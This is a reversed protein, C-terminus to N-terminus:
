NIFKAYIDGSFSTKYPISLLIEHIEDSSVWEDLAFDMTEGFSYNFKVDGIESLHEVSKIAKKILGPTPTFEFSIIKISRSLGDIVENEFGEVDIKCIDPRGYEEILKDLTTVSVSVNKNWQFASTSTFFMDSEKVSNIWEDSMSSVTHSDSLILEGRGEKAGVAKHILTVKSNNAYKKKLKKMCKDQPEVAVVRAGLELFVRTRNGLNAGIDFCLDGENIFKSYFRILKKRSLFNSIFLVTTYVVNYLRTFRLIRVFVILARIPVLGSKTCSAKSSRRMKIKRIYNM